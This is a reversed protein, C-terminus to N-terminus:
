APGPALTNAAPPQPAPREINWLNRATRAAERALAPGTRCAGVLTVGELPTALLLRAGQFAGLTPDGLVALTIVLLDASALAARRPPSDSEGFAAITAGPLEHSIAAELSQRLPEAAVLMITRGTGLSSRAASAQRLLYGYAGAILAGLATYGLSRGIEGAAGPEAHGLLAVVLLQILQIATTVGVIVGFLLAAYLYIRRSLVREEDASSRALAESRWITLGYVPLAVIVTAIYWSLPTRWASDIIASGLWLRMLTGILGGMGFYLAVLSIAGILYAILRRATSIRETAGSIRATLALQERHYLLVPLAVLLAAGALTEEAFAGPWASEGFLIRLSAALLATLGTLAAVLSSAIVLASFVQRLASVLEGAQLPGPARVLRSSWLEHPLWIVFGSIMAAAPEILEEPLGPAGFVFRQLLAHILAGAGFCCMALSIWRALALYWRRLTANPGSCEVQDRDVGFFRWHALWIAAYVGASVLPNILEIPDSRQSLGLLAVRFAEVLAFQISIVAVLLVGYAYLRRLASRQGEPQRADGQALFWHGAWLPAGVAVLAISGGLRLATIDAAGIAGGFLREGLLTCLASVGAAMMFLGIFAAIYVYLRRVIQVAM